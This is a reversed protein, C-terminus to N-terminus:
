GALATERVPQTTGTKPPQSKDAAWRWLRQKFGLLRAQQRPDAFYTYRVTNTSRNRWGLQSECQRPLYFQTDRREFSDRLMRGFLVHPTLEGLNPAFALDVVEIAGERQFAYAGAIVRNNVKLLNVEAVAADIASGHIDRMFELRNWAPAQGSESQSGNRQTIRLLELSSLMRRRRLTDGHWSGLPRYRVFSVDGEDALRDEAAFYQDTWDMPLSALYTDWNSSIEVYSVDHCHSQHSEFGASLMAAATQNAAHGLAVRGLDIMDWARDTQAVHRLAAELTKGPEPGIPGYFSGCNETPYSLATIPGLQSATEKVVFPVIGIPQRNELVVMVRLAQGDGFRTMYSKLWDYSSFFSANKTQTWLKRWAFRFETLRDLENIEVVTIV